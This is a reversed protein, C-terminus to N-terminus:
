RGVAFVRDDARLFVRGGGAAPSAVFHGDLKNRSLVEFTRGAKIVITEGGEAVFYIKGDGAIPSASFTGGVREQWLRQGNSADVASLIGNDTSMYIVGQYHVLSSVYPGGTPVRWAVHTNTIDGRGGLRIAMFPSSRYGRSLYLVGNDVMAVPIPFRNVEPYTWLSKGTAPDFSEVGSNSNVILENGGSGQVVIPSSYSEQGAPKDVKWKVAGTRKDLALIYSAPSHYCLLIITDQFLVPSSAHGWNIDFAGFEKGLHKTWVPKGNTDLAVLQGTGFWAYVREGDTVPSASALNHKDHVPPLDGEPKTEHIWVRKGSARDFAEVIFAVDTRARGTGLSTSPRALTTEGASKPDGGQTLTPHNGPRRRGDGAQSTVFVRNGFVIPSSVGAGELPSQWAVNETASWTAPLASASAIGNSAPGRWHPWDNASIAGSAALVLVLVWGLKVRPVM